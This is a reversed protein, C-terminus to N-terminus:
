PRLLRDSLAIWGPNFYLYGALTECLVVLAGGRALMRNPRGRTVTDYLLM